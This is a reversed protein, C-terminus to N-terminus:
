RTLRRRYLRTVLVTGVALLGALVATHGLVALPRWVGLAADRALETGHWLPSVWTLPRIWEPLRDVPFFTGSFLTMPIVVFRFLANFPGGENEVTASFAMVLSAVAAGTLVAALLSLVIAPGTVGGFVAIVAVYVAGSGAMKAVTWSLHGLAIQAPTIPGAAMAHYVRQWKFASLVPYTSEFAASQVASVALLAPALWVLYPAGGTAQAAQGSGAVLSGFGVGFALLFLLPQLVSSVATARWNRRYWTWFGEAVILVGRTWSPVRGTSRPAVVGAPVAAM